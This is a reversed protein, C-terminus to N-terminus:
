PFHTNIIILLRSDALELNINTLRKSEDLYKFKM